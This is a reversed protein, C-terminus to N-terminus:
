AAGAQLRRQLLLQLQGPSLTTSSFCRQTLINGAWGAPPSLVGEQDWVTAESTGCKSHGMRLQEGEGVSSHSTLTGLPPIQFKM